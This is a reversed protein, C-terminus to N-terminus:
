NLIYDKFDLFFVRRLFFLSSFIDVRMREDVAVKNNFGFRFIVLGLFYSWENILKM